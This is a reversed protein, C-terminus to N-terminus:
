YRFLKFRMIKKHFYKKMNFIYKKICIMLRIFTNENNIFMIYFKKILMTLKKIMKNFNIITM